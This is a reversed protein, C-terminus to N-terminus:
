QIGYANIKQQKISIYSAIENLLDAASKADDCASSYYKQSKKLYEKKQENHKALENLESATFRGERRYIQNNIWNICFDEDKIKQEYNKYQAINYEQSVKDSILMQFINGQAACKMIRLLTEAKHENVDM